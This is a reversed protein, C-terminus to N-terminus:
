YLGIKDIIIEGRNTKDFIFRIETLEDLKFGNNESYFESFPLEILQMLKEPDSDKEINYPYNFKTLQTKLMPPLIRYNNLTRKVLIRKTKLEITFDLTDSRNNYIFFFLGKCSDIQLTNLSQETLQISYHSIKDTAKESNDWSLYVAKTEQSSKKKNRLPIEKETWVKLNEGKIKCNELTATQKDSDEEFDCIYKYNSDEFQNIYYDKPLSKKGSRFDKFLPIYEYKEKLTAEVFSSIYLQAIKMQMEEPMIPKLNLFWSVPARDDKRGWISNFQSHNAKYIFLSSKFHYNGDTFAVRNYTKAGTFCYIDSDFGGHLVLYNINNLNKSINNNTTYYDGPAIQIIGKISFNFNSDKSNNMIAATAVADGGRSHGILVINDLDVKEYFINDNSSNWNKWKELHKLLIWARTYTETKNFDDLWSENLFNEDVSVFIYGRSALLSGLYDYGSESYDSMLHNGHVMLILPFSGQEEPYWVKGNLPYNTTSFGWYLKRLLKKIGSLNNFFSSVDVTSTRISIDSSYEKRQKDNGSGYSLQKVKYNGQQSPDKPLNSTSNQEWFNDKVIETNDFGEFALIYIFLFNVIVVLGILVKSIIQQLGIVFSLGILLGCAM